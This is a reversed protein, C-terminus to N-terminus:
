DCAVRQISRAETRVGSDRQMIPFSVAASADPLTLSPVVTLTALRSGSIEDFSSPRTVWARAWKAFANANAFSPHGMEGQRQSFHPIEGVGMWRCTGASARPAVSAKTRGGFGSCVSLLSDGATESRSLPFVSFPRAVRRIYLSIANAPQRETREGELIPSLQGGKMKAPRRTAWRKACNVFPRFPDSRLHSVLRSAAFYQLGHRLGYGGFQIARLVLQGQSVLPIVSIDKTSRM